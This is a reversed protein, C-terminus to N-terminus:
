NINMVSYQSPLYSLESSQQQDSHIRFSLELCNYGSAFHIAESTKIFMEAELLCCKM